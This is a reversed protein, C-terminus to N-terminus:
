FYIEQHDRAFAEAKSRPEWDHSRGTAGKRRKAPRAAQGVDGVDGVDRVDGRVRQHTSAQRSRWWAVAQDRTKLPQDAWSTMLEWKEQQHTPAATSLAHPHIARDPPQSDFDGHAVTGAHLEALAFFLAKETEALRQELAAM